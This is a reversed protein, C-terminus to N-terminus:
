PMGGSLGLNVKLMELLTIERQLNPDSLAADANKLDAIAKDLRTAADILDLSGNHFDGCVRKMALFQNTVAVTRQLRAM